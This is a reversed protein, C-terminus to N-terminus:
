RVFESAFFALGCVSVCRGGRGSIVTPALGSNDRIELDRRELCARGCSDVTDRDSGSYSPLSSDWRRKSEQLMHKSELASHQHPTAESPAGYRMDRPVQPTSTEPVQLSRHKTPCWPASFHKVRDLKVTCRLPNIFAIYPSTSETCSTKEGGPFQSRKRATTKLCLAHPIDLGRLRGLVRLLLTRRSTPRPKLLFKPWPGAKGPHCILTWTAFQRRLCALQKGLSCM